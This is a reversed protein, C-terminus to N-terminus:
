TREGVEPQAHVTQEPSVEAPLGVAFPSRRMPAELETGPALRLMLPTTMLTTVLSMIVLMCFVPDPVVGLNKAQNIVVLGMLARTNMMVGILSAERRSYGSAYAVLGCGLWKGAISAVLVLGCMGWLWVSDLTGINTRLGTYTFFIPLFFASVFDELRRAVAARFEEEDSLVAGLLFGGFVAFIGILSTAMACLFILGLLIALSTVTVEGKGERLIWRIWIKMLPRVVGIMFAVFALTLLIMQVTPGLQFGVRVTGAVAALLIWGAVDDIAAATVAVTALRTRTVNMEMLMRGLVPLATISLATGLFLGFELFEVPRGTLPNLQYKEDLGALLLPAIALGLLFPVIVGVISVGAASRGYQRLRSFDFELGVLFLLLILGLQALTTFILAFIPGAVEIPVEDLGPQFVWRAAEPFFYGFFSPGLLLGAAIEGVAAPQRLRVFLRAFLRAVLIIVTLQLLLPLLLDEVHVQRLTRLLDAPVEVALLLSPM